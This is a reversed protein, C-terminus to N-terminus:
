HSEQVQEEVRDHNEHFDYLVEANKRANVADSFEAFSGLYIKEGDVRIRAIWRNDNKYWYVGTTGSTNNTSRKCNKSNDGSTGPALNCWRNDSRDGNQHDIVTKGTPAEGTMLYYIVRHAKYKNGLLNVYVYGLSDISGITDGKKRRKNIDIKLRLAGTTPHYEVLNEIGEYSIAM